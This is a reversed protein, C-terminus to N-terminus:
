QWKKETYQLASKLNVEQELSDKHKVGQSFFAKSLVLKFISEYNQMM